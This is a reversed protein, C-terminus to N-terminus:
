LVMTGSVGSVEIPESTPLLRSFLRSKDEDEVKDVTGGGLLGEEITEDEEWVDFDRLSLRSLFLKFWDKSFPRLRFRRSLDSEEEVDDLDSM